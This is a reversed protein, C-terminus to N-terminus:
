IVGIVQMLSIISTACPKLGGGSPTYTAYISIERGIYGDPTFSAPFATAYAHSYYSAQTAGGADYRTYTGSASNKWYLWYDGASLAVSLGSITNWGASVAQGTDDAYMKNFSSDYIALKVNGVATDLYLSIATVTGAESLTFISGRIVGATSHWESGGIDTKGFTAM